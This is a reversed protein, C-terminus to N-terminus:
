IAVDEAPAITWKDMAGQQWGLSFDLVLDTCM